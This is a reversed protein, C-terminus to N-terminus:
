SAINIVRIIAWRALLLGWYVSVKSSGSPFIVRLAERDDKLQQWETELEEQATTSTMLDRVIEEKFSRRLQRDMPLFNFINISAYISM